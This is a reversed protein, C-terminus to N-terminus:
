CVVSTQSGTQKLMQGHLPQLRIAYIAMALPDMHTTGKQSVLKETNIFLQPHQRYSNIAITALSLSVSM